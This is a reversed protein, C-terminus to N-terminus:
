CYRAKVQIVMRDQVVFGLAPDALNRLPILDKAAWSSRGLRLVGNGEDAVTSGATHLQNVVQLMM